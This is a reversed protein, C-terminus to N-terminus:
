AGRAGERLRLLDRASKVGRDLSGLIDQKGRSLVMMLRIRGKAVNATRAAAAAPQEEPLPAPPVVPLSAPGSLVAKALSEPDLPPPLEPDLPALPEPPEPPALLEPPTLSEPPASSPPLSASAVSLPEPEPDLLPLLEPDLPPPSAPAHVGPVWCHEPADTTVHADFPVQFAGQVQAVPVQLSPAHVPSVALPV